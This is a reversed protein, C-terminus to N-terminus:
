PEGAVFERLARIIQASSLGTMASIAAPDTREPGQDPHERMWAIQAQRVAEKASTFHTERGLNVKGLEGRSVLTNLVASAGSRHRLSRPYAPAMRVVDDATLLSESALVLERVIREAQTSPEPASLTLRRERLAEKLKALVLLGADQEEGKLLEILIGAVEEGRPARGLLNTLNSINSM